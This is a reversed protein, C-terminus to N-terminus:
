FSFVLPGWARANVKLARGQPGEVFNLLGIPRAAIDPRPSLNVLSSSGPRGFSGTALTALADPGVFSRSTRRRYAAAGDMCSQLQPHSPRSSM